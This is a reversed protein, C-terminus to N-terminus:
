PVPDDHHVRCVVLGVGDGDNAGDLEGVFGVLAGVSPRYWTTASRSSQCATRRGGRPTSRTGQAGLSSTQCCRCDRRCAGAELGEM